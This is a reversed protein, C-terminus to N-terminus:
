PPDPVPRVFAVGPLGGDGGTLMQSDRPGNDRSTFDGSAAAGGCLKAALVLAIPCTKGKM